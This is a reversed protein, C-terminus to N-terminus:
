ESRLTGRYLSFAIGVGCFLASVCFISQMADIFHGYLDPALPRQGILAALIVTAVSMGVLQGLLRMTGVMASAVGYEEPRVSGMIANTNPSSFLAFGIGLVVLNGGILALSSAAGVRSFFLVGLLTLGMGLSALLRPELRDSLRGAMPSCLAMFVPQAMLFLGASQPSMGKIYQLYLSMLFTVTFSAAYHLLAALSSFTFTRNRAFLAVDVLPSSKQRQILWFLVLGALGVGFFVVGRAVPLISLGYVLCLVSAAYVLSGAADFRCQEEGTWEGKLLMVTLLIAGLGVPTMGLFLSRWGFHHTLIGGWLPGVSLGIYVAAVYIGLARGRKQPAIISTLIAMGTTTFLGTGLGQMARCVLLPVITTVMSILFSALTFLLMGTVFIKKRGYLDALRGAPLLVMAMTLMYITIVWGLEVANLGLETQIAPLAVNTASIMVPGLFSSLATVTLATKEFSSFAEAEGFSSDINKM